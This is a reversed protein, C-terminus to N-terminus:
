VIYSIVSALLLWQATMTVESAIQHGVGKLVKGITKPVERNVLSKNHKHKHKLFKSTAKSMLEGTGIGFQASGLPCNSHCHSTLKPLVIPDVRVKTKWELESDVSM